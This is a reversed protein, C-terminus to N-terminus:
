VFYANAGWAVPFASTYEEVNLHLQEVLKKKLLAINSSTDFLAHM